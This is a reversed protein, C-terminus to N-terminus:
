HYREALTVPSGSSNTFGGAATCVTSLTCSVGYLESKTAGTPNPPEQVSWETGNWREALPVSRGSSNEFQGVAACMTSSTCSVGNLRSETAGTPNPPEHIKWETGNWNETLQESKGSTGLLEGVAACATSSACSVGSLVTRYEGTPNPPEQVSWVTGNWSEALAVHRGLSNEFEGVAICATSSMCSVGSLMSEIAGTPNPPEQVSWVTGNWSEALPVRKGSSSEFHGVATCATSSTCSVGGLYSQKAGTPSPPEQISWVTGNWSEALPVRKGSSSEFHGVAICATSSTCSVGSLISETAGTPIPPEQVSWTTGNWSEALLEGKGGGARGSGNYFEGVATCATSSMCSVGSLISETAGTPSPSEQVSWSPEPTFTHDMGDTTGTGNTAVVRFHYNTEPELGTIVKSEELNSTGSGANASPVPVSTGYSTTKGYEFHYTTEQGEPNVTGNLTAGTSTVSTAADTVASPASSLALTGDPTGWGTPGDYGVEATCLYEDETPPACTGDSGKTIDFLLGKAAPLYFADAGLSRVYANSLAEVGAIIPTSASTGTRTTWREEGTREYSDYASLKYAVASVDNDTRKACGKDTQWAPKPEYKSCGSGTSDGAEPENHWVEESWKRSNLPEKTLQTGGASIVYPSSAPYKAGYGSDGGAFVIPIGPHNFYVDEETESSNEGSNGWSNSIAAPKLSAAEDEAADLNASSNSNAEVLLLKCEQCVASVMALDLSMEKAWGTNPEPYIAATESEASEGKQNIKTFCKNARTCPSLEYHERYVKLDAEADPYNYADVIAVTEGAGGKTPLKYASRLNEPSWGGLEGTGEEDPGIEGLASKAHDYAAPEVIEECEFYGPTAAPCARYPKTSSPTSSITAAAAPQTGVLGLLVAVLLTPCAWRSTRHERVRERRSARWVPRFHMVRM